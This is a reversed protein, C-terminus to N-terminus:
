IFTKSINTFTVGFKLRIELVLNSVFQNIYLFICDNLDLHAMSIPCDGSTDKTM